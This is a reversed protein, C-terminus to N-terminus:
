WHIETRQASRYAAWLRPHTGFKSGLHGTQPERYQSTINERCPIAHVPLWTLIYFILHVLVYIRVHHDFDSCLTCSSNQIRQLAQSRLQLVEQFELARMRPWPAEPVTGISIWQDVLNKISAIAENMLSIKHREVFADVDVQWPFRQWNDFDDCVVCGLCYYRWSAIQWWLYVPLRSPLSSTFPMMSRCFELIPRGDHHSLSRTSM